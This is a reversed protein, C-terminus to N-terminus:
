RTPVMVVTVLSSLNSFSADKQTLRVQFTLFLSFDFNRARSQDKGVGVQNPWGSKPVKQDRENRAPKLYLPSDLYLSMFLPVKRKNAYFNLCKVFLPVDYKTLLKQFYAM